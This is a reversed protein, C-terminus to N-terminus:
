KYEPLRGPTYPAHYRELAAELKKVEEGISKVENYVPRFQKEILGFEEQYTSPDATSSNWLSGTIRGLRQNISPLTEFERNGKTRDGNLLVGADDIRSDLANFQDTLELPVSGAKQVAAKLYRIKNAQERRFEETGSVIRRLEAVKATFAGLAKKDEVQFSGAGLSVAKFPVADVLASYKGDEFKSMSLKYNGPLALPGRDPSSFAFSEDFSAFNVPGTSEYRFDWVVRNM